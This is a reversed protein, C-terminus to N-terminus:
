LFLPIQANLEQGPGTLHAVLFALFKNQERVHGTYRHKDIRDVVALRAPGGLARDKAWEIALTRRLQRRSGANALVLAPLWDNHTPAHEGGISRRDRARQEIDPLSVLVTQVLLLVGVLGIHIQAAFEAGILLPAVAEHADFGDGVRNGGIPRDSLQQSRQRTVGEPWGM